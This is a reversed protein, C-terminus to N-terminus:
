NTYIHLATKALRICKYYYHLLTTYITNKSRPSYMAFFAGADYNTLMTQATRMCLSDLQENRYCKM